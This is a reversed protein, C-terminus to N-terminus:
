KKENDQEEITFIDEVSVNFYQAIKLSLELSPNYIHKEIAYITQRSVELDTALQKQSINNQARYYKIKNKIM